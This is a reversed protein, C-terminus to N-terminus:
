EVTTISRHYPSRLVWDGGAEVQSPGFDRSLQAEVEPPLSGPPALPNQALLTRYHAEDAERDGSLEGIRDLVIPAAAVGPLSGQSTGLLVGDLRRPRGSTGGANFIAFVMAGTHKETAICTLQARLPLLWGEFVTEGVGMRVELLGCDHLRVIGQDHVFHGPAAEAPRTTRFFCQLDAARAATAERIQPLLSLPLGDIQPLPASAGPSEVGLAAALDAPARDWDLMTFGSARQAVYRTLASMNHPSPVVAGSVWRGVVSKDVALDAALRARSLSLIKLVLELKASFPTDM